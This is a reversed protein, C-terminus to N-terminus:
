QKAAKGKEESVERERKSEVEIESTVYAELKQLSLYISRFM